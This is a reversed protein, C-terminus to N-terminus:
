RARNLSWPGTKDPVRIHLWARRSPYGAPFKHGALNEVSLEALLAGIELGANQLTLRATASSLQDITRQISAAFHEPAGAVQLAEGNQQMLRAMYANGGVLVHQYFPQRLPGGTISLQVGGQGQPMHCAQCTKTKAYASNAWESYILQEAFQGAVKGAGDVYPTVLDHCTGCIESQGLHLGQVPIYGSAVQM